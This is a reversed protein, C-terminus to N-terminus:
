EVEVFPDTLILVRSIRRVDALPELIATQFPVGSEETVTNVIGVLIGAPVGEELGSTVVLNNEEVIEDVPIFDVQLLDGVVGHAVGITRRENLLSVAVASEQDTVTLVTATGPSVGVVKGLLIGSEVVVASGVQVGDRSGVDLLVRVSSSDVTKSIISAPLYSEQTREIYGLLEELEQNENKLQESESALQQFYLLDDQMTKLETPDVQTNLATTSIWSGVRVFPASIPSIISSVVGRFLFLLVVLFFMLFPTARKFFGKQTRSAM